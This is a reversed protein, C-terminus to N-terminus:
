AALAYSKPAFNKNADKTKKRNITAQASVEGADSCRMDIGTIGM